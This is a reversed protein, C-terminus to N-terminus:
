FATPSNQGLRSESSDNQIDRRAARAWSIAEDASRIIAVQGRWYRHWDKQAGTLHGKATKCEILFNQGGIGILLDPVGSGVAHLHQVSVFFLGRLAAVIEAQNEDVRAARRPM